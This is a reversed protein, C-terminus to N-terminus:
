QGMMQQIRQMERELERGMERQMQRMEAQMENRARNERAEDSELIGAAQLDSCLPGHQAAVAIWPGSTCDAVSAFPEDYGFYQRKVILNPAGSVVRFMGFFIAALVSLVVVTAIVNNSISRGPTEGSHARTVRGSPNGCRPCSHAKDSIQENCEPCPLLAM